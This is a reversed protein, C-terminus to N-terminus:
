LEKRIMAQTYQAGQTLIFTSVGGLPIFKGKKIINNVSTQLGLTNGESVIIYDLKDM